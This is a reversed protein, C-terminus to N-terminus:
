VENLFFRVSIEENSGPEQNGFQDCPFGAVMFLDDKGLTEFMKELQKYHDDTFGCKSAVNVVMIVKGKFADFKIDNGHIDNATLDYFKSSVAPSVFNLRSIILLTFFKLMKTSKERLGFM